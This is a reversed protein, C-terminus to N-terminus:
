SRAGHGRSRAPSGRRALSLTLMARVSKRESTTRPTWGTAQAIPPRVDEMVEWARAMRGDHVLAVAVHDSRKRRLQRAVYITDMRNAIISGGSDGGIGLEASAPRSTSTM